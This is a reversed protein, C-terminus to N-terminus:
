DFTAIVKVACAIAMTDEAAGIIPDSIGTAKGIGGRLYYFAFSAALAAISGAVAGKLPKKGADIYYAAGCVAGAAVRATLGGKDIRAPTSPLKDIVIEGAASVLLVPMAKKSYLLKIIPSSSFYNLPRDKILLSTVILGANTRMGSLMGSVLVRKLTSSFLKM